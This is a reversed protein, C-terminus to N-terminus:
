PTKDTYKHNKQLTKSYKKGSAISALYKLAINKLIILNQQYKTTNESKLQNKNRDFFFPLLM